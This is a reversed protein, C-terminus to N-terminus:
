RRKSLRRCLLALYTVVWSSRENAIASQFIYILPVRVEVLLFLTEGSGAGEFRNSSEPSSLSVTECLSKISETTEYRCTAFSGTM